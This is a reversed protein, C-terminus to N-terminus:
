NCPLPIVGCFTRLETWDTREFSRITAGQRGSHSPILHKNETNNQEDKSRDQIDRDQVRDTAYEGNDARDQPDESTHVSADSPASM